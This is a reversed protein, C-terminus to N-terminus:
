LKNEKEIEMDIKVMEELSMEVFPMANKLLITAVTLAESVTFNNKEVGNETISNRIKAQHTESDIDMTITIVRHKIM